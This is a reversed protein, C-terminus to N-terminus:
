CLKCYMFQHEAAPERLGALALVEPRIGAHRRPYFRVGNTGIQITESAKLCREIHTASDYLM